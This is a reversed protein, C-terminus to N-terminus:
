KSPTVLELRPKGAPAEAADEFDALQADTPWIGHVKVYAMRRKDLPFNVQGDDGFKMADVAIAHMFGAGDTDDALHRAMGLDCMANFEAITRPHWPAFTAAAFEQFEAASMTIKNDSVLM